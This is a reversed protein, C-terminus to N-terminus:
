RKPNNIKIPNQRTDFVDTILVGEKVLKYIIKYNGNILYRHNQNLRKLTQEVTGSKPFNLLQKTASFIDNKISDAIIKSAKIRYHNHIEKLMKKAFDSWIIIM